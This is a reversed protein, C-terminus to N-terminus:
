DDALRQTMFREPAGSARGGSELWAAFGSPDRKELEELYMQRVAILAARRDPDDEDHLQWFTRRWLGCLQGVSMTTLARDPSTEPEHEAAREANEDLERLGATAPSSTTSGARSMDRRSLLYALLPPSTGIALGVVLLGMAPSAVLIAFGGVVGAGIGSSHAVLHGVAREPPAFLENRLVTTAVGAVLSVVLVAVATIAASWELMGLGVGLTSVV